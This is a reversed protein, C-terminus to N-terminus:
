SRHRTRFRQLAKQEAAGLRRGAGLAEIARRFTANRDMKAKVLAWREVNEYAGQASPDAQAELDLSVKRRRGARRQLVLPRALEYFNHRLYKGWDEGVPLTAITKWTAEEFLENIEEKSLTEYLERREIWGLAWQAKHVEGLWPFTGLEANMEDLGDFAYDFVGAVNGITFHPYASPSRCDGNFRWEWNGDRWIRQAARLPLRVDAVEVAEVLRGWAALSHLFVIDGERPLYMKPFLQTWHM